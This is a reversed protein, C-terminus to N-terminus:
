RPVLENSVLLKFFGLFFQITQVEFRHDLEPLPDSLMCGKLLNHTSGSFSNLLQVKLPETLM